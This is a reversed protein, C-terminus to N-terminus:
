MKHQSLLKDKKQFRDFIQELAENILRQVETMKVFEHKSYQM